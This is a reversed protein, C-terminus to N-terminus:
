FVYMSSFPFLPTMNFSHCPHRAFPIPGRTHIYMINDAIRHWVIISQESDFFFLVFHNFHFHKPNFFFTMLKTKPKPNGIKSNSNM